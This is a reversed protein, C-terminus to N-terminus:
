ANKVENWLKTMTPTVRWRKWNVDTELVGLKRLFKLQKFIKESSTGMLICLSRVEIGQPRDGMIRLMELTPGQSTDLMVKHVRAITEDDTKTQGLVAAQAIMLRTLQKTLRPSFERETNEERNYRARMFAVFKGFDSCRDLLRDSVAIQKTLELANTRLFDLYGGTMAMANALDPPYQGEPRGNSLSLMNQAEQRAARKSVRAEFEDTIKDMIVVDLFRAGLESDDIERIASTGALHWTMRHGMYERNVFNRYNTRSVKDYLARAESLIQQLNPAKLLTDGDKTGLTRGKVLDALPLDTESQAKAGSHFGRITDRSFYWKVATALGEMLSTKYSSAPGIIKFWLQEGLFETSMSSALMVALASDLGPHWEAAAEWAKVLETYDECTKLALTNEESQQGNGGM